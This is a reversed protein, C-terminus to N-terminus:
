AVAEMGNLFALMQYYIDKKSDYGSTISRAGGNTEIKQLQWGGYAGSLKYAGVTNYEVDKDFGAKGNIRDLVNYIDKQLVRM